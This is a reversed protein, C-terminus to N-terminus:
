KPSSFDLVKAATLERQKQFRRQRSLDDRQRAEAIDRDTHKYIIKVLDLRELLLLIQYTVDSREEEPAGGSFSRYGPPHHNFQGTGSSHVSGPKPSLPHRL